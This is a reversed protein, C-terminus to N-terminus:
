THVEMISYAFPFLIKCFDAEIEFHIKIECFELLMVWLRTLLVIDNSQDCMM